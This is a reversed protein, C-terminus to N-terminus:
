KKGVVVELMSDKRLYRKATDLLEQPTVDNIISIYRNYFELDEGRFYVAKFRDSMSFPGDTEKLISGLMYNKVMELEGEPILEESLANMEKYVEELAAKTVDAGVETALFFFVADEMNAIASGIGYTFGKDERINSMLRSGFYGGFVTNLVKLKFYEDSGFEIDLVRGIRIGSQIADSKEEYIVQAESSDVKVKRKNLDGTPLSGFNAELKNLLSEDYRGALIIVCNAATYHNNYFDVVEQQSLKDYDEVEVLSGYPHEGFLKHNFLLRCRSGVKEQQVKFKQAGNKLLVDLEKQPFTPKLVAEAFVPLVDDISKNLCFLSVSSKDKDARTELFAGHYDIKEMIEGPLFSESAEGVLKSTYAATLRKSQYKTGAFFNLEVQVVEQSGMNFGLVKVGNSLTYEKPKVFEIKEVRKIEPQSVRDLM